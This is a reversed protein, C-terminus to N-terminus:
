QLGARRSTRHARHSEELLSAASYVSQHVNVEKAGRAVGLREAEAAVAAREATGLARFATVAVDLRNGKLTPRWAAVVDVGAVVVGDVEALRKRQWSLRPAADADDRPWWAATLMRLDASRHALVQERSVIVGVGCLQRV